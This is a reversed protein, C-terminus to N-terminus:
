ADGRLVVAVVRSSSGIRPGACGVNGAQLALVPNLPDFSQVALGRSTM